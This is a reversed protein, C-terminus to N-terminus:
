LKAKADLGIVDYRDIGILESYHGLLVQSDLGRSGIWECGQLAIPELYISCGQKQMRQGLGGNLLHSSHDVPRQRYGKAITSDVVPAHAPVRDIISGRKFPMRTREDIDFIFIRAPVLGVVILIGLVVIRVIDIQVFVPYEFEYWRDIVDCDSCSVACRYPRSTWQTKYGFIQSPIEIAALLIGIAHTSAAIGISM